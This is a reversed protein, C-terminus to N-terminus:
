NPVQTTGDLFGFLVCHTWEHWNETTHPMKTMVHVPLYRRMREIKSAESPSSVFDASTDLSSPEEAVKWLKQM